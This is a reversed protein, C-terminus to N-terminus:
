ESHRFNRQAQQYVSSAFFRLASQSHLFLYYLKKRSSRQADHRIQVSSDVLIEIGKLRARTCLDVDEFYLRYKEDMGGLQRFVDSQMLWFMGAIWDPHILGNRDPHFPEFKYGPLRRRVIEFPTPLTRFSDQVHGNVDIVYPALIANPHTKLRDLLKNFIPREFVLDPNLIAFYGDQVVKFANNHNRAFGLSTRNRLIKLSGWPTPDFEPLDKGWNDTLIIQFRKPDPERKRLSELLHGVKSADGHSVISVTITSESNM